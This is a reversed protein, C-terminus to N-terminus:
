SVASIGAVDERGRDGRRTFGRGVFRRRQNERRYDTPSPLRRSTLTEKRRRSRRHQRRRVDAIFIRTADDASATSVLEIRDKSGRVKAQVTRRVKAAKRPAPAALFCPSATESLFDLM